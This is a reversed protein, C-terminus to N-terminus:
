ATLVDIGEDALMTVLRILPLGILTTADNGQVSELLAIGLGEAKFAGACDLPREREVYSEIAADSLRRFAVSCQEVAIHVRGADPNFLCLGTLFRASNGRLARLQAIAAPVTGPKTLVATGLLAVQDSGIVLAQPHRGGVVRAKAEALRAVLATASEGERAAEDVQPADVDFPLGLRQLLERRYPSGSALVLRMTKVGFLALL